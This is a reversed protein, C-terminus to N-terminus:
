TFEPDRIIKIRLFFFMFFFMFFFFVYNKGTKKYVEALYAEAAALEPGTRLIDKNGSKKALEQIFSESAMAEAKEIELKMVLDVMTALNQATLKAQGQALSVLSSSSKSISFLGVVVLPLIAAVVGGVILKTKLTMKRM